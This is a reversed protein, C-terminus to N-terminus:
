EAGGTHNTASSRLMQGESVNGWDLIVRDGPRVGDLIEMWGEHLGPGITVARRRATGLDGDEGELIWVHSDMVAKAPVLVRPLRQKQVEGNATIPAPLIRVRALMDPKLLESPDNIRVKAEVTNKQLDARHVFRLVEGTFVTDPLLDVVIEAPQGAGVMAVDALPVDARVQLRAPDYLHVVHSAHEDNGFRVVSGPSTLREIVIGDIPSVVTMRELTLAALDRNAQANALGAEAKTVAAKAVEVTALLRRVDAEAAAVRLGLREVPGAAVAGGEVLTSKQTYEHMLADTTARAAEIQAALVDLRANADIVQAEATRMNAQKQRLAIQAEDPVLRAVAQGKSVHDGELVLIEQVVGEALAGAYVSYPEAEVWGPAQVIAAEDIPMDAVVETEVERLLATATSVTPAPVISSWATALLLAAVALLLGVPMGFRLLWRRPPKPIKTTMTNM